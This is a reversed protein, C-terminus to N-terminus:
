TDQPHVGDTDTWTDTVLRIPQSLQIPLLFSERVTIPILDLVIFDKVLLGGASFGGCTIDEMCKVEGQWDVCIENTSHVEALAPPMPNLKSTGITLTRVRKHGDVEVQIQRVIRVRVGDSDRPLFSNDKRKKEPDLLCSSPPVLEYLSELSSCLQVHFPIADTIAFTQVSPILLHCVIPTGSSGFRTESTAVLQRWEEPVPKLSSFVTDIMVFPRQPRTRPRYNLVVSFTKSVNWSAFRYRRTKVITISLSYNCKVILAPISMFIHEFTPPLRTTKGDRSTYTCPIRISFPLISPCPRSTGGATKSAWLTEKHSVLTAGSTGYEAAMLSMQGYLKVNVEVVIGGRSYTPLRVGEDQDKFIIIAEKFCKVHSRQEPERITVGPRPTFALTREDDSPTRSYDPLMPPSPEYAPLMDVTM